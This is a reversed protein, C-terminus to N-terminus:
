LVEAEQRVAPFGGVGRVQVADAPVGEVVEVRGRVRVLDGGGLGLQLAADVLVPLGRDLPVRLHELVEVAEDLQGQGVVVLRGDLVRGKTRQAARPLRAPPAGGGDRAPRTDVLPLLQERPPRRRRRQLGPPRGGGSSPSPVRRRRRRRRSIISRGVSRLVSRLTKATLSLFM